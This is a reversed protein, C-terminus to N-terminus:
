HLPINTCKFKLKFKLEFNHAVSLLMRRRRAVHKTSSLSPREDVDVSPTPPISPPLHTTTLGKVLFGGKPAVLCPLTPDRLAPGLFQPANGRNQSKALLEISGYGM